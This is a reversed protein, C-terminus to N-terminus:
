RRLSRQRLGANDALNKAFTYTSNFTIGSKYRHNVEMQLANYSANAGNARTNIVGWNPFPRSSLRNTSM